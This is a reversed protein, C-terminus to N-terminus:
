LGSSFSEPFFNASTTRKSFKNQKQSSKQCNSTILARLVAIAPSDTLLLLSETVFFNESQRVSLARPHALLLNEM